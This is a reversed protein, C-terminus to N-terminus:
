SLKYINTQSFSLDFSSVTFESLILKSELKSLANKYEERDGNDFILLGDRKLKPLAVELCAVRVRGDIVLIDFSRDEFKTISKVYETYDCALYNKDKKSYVGEVSSSKKPEKLVISINNLDEKSLINQVIEYWKSDHEISIVKAGKSGFFLTSAGSGYEFVNAGLLVSSELLKVAPVTMWPTKNQLRDQKIRNQNIYTFFYKFPVIISKGSKSAIMLEKYFQHILSILRKKEM